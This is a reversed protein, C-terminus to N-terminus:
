RKKIATDQRNDMHPMIRPSSHSLSKINFPADLRLIKNASTLLRLHKLPGLLIIYNITYPQQEIQSAMEITLKLWVSPLRLWWWKKDNVKRYRYILNVTHSLYPTNKTTTTRITTWTMADLIVNKIRNHKGFATAANNRNVRELNNEETAYNNRDFPHRM